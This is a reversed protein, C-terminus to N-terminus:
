ISYGISLVQLEREGSKLTNQLVEDLLRTTQELSKHLDNNKLYLGLFVASFLDGTGSPPVKFHHETTTIFYQDKGNSGFVCLTESDKFKVGTIVVTGIRRAHLNTAAEILDEKTQITIGTLIEAEFQNPTIIDGHLNNKFYDLVEPKVYCKKDGIVPDCLYIINPNNDKFKNVTKAVAQCIELSGMYGSLIATCKKHQDIAFIGDILKLIHDASFIKGEFKGYGTHNSFQVTNLPWVDYGMNQLPYTAAKNGVYGHLVHSQISLISNM